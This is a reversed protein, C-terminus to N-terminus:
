PRDNKLPDPPTKSVTTGLTTLEQLFAQVQAPTLARAAEDASDAGSQEPGNGEAGCGVLSLSLASAVVWKSIRNM